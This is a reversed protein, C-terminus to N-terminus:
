IHTERDFANKIYNKHKECWFSISFACGFQVDLVYTYDVGFVCMAYCAEPTCIYLAAYMAIFTCPQLIFHWMNEITTVVGYLRGSMVSYTLLQIWTRCKQGDYNTELQSM